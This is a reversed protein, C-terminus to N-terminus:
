GILLRLLVVFYDVMKIGVVNITNMYRLTLSKGILLRLLVVLYDVMKIGVVNITNMYCLM